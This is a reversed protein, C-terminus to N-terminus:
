VGAIRQIGGRGGSGRDPNLGSKRSITSRACDLLLTAQLLPNATAGYVERCPGSPPITPDDPVQGPEVDSLDAESMQEISALNLLVVVHKLAEGLDQMSEPRLLEAHLAIEEKL